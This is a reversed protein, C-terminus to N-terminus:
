RSGAGARPCRYMFIRVPLLLLGSDSAMEALSAKGSTLAFM